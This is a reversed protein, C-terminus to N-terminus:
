KLVEKAQQYDEEKMVYYHADQGRLFPLQEVTTRRINLNLGTFLELRDILSGQTIERYAGWGNINVYICLNTLRQDSAAQLAEWVSGESCEGDSILCYVMKLRDSLAMGVAIPLGQGLSGTSCDIRCDQCRDPHVGHHFFIQEADKGQYKEIVTYLALGAHGASLVFQEDQKKVSYIEDIIDVASLCSGIHSLKNIFSIELIRRKLDMNADCNVVLKNKM